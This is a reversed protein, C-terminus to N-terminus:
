NNYFIIPNTSGRYKYVKIKAEKMLFRNLKKQVEDLSHIETEYHGADIFLIKGEAEQFSHYKVDSTIFADAGSNCAQDMLDSCSGGCVAVRKINGKKGNTYRLNRVKLSKSVHNLFEKTNMSNKLEGVAGMGYNINENNLPYLDYAVEEYPHSSKLANLVKYIKWSDVVVELKLEDVSEQKGRAGVAPTTTGSGKFTGTGKTRFSCNSYDGIKGAGAQHIANSVMEISEEPVFVALKFQNGSLNVLFKTNNLDLRKALRFSVGDKAYDLNTHASYLTVNNKILKEVLKSTRDSGTDIKALPNFLLPHHTIIFNCNKKYAQDIVNQNLDLSLLINKIKREDTGIQLGVNDKDWAIAKPIWEELYKIVDKCKM